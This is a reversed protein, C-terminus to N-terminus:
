RGEIEYGRCLADNHWSYGHELKTGSLLLLRLRRYERGEFEIRVDDVNMSLQM